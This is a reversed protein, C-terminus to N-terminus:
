LVLMQIVMKLQSTIMHRSCCAGVCTRLSQVMFGYRHHVFAGDVFWDVLWNM